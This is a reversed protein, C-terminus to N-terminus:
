TSYITYLEYVPFKTIPKLSNKEISDQLALICLKTWVKFFIKTRHIMLYPLQAFKNQLILKSNSVTCCKNM